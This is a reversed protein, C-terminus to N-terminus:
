IVPAPYFISNMYYIVGCVFHLSLTGTLVINVAMRKQNQFDFVGLRAAQGITETFLIFLAVMAGWWFNLHAMNKVESFLLAIVIAVVFNLWALLVTKDDRLQQRYFLTLLLPFLISLLIFLFVSGLNPVYQLIAKFPAFIISDSDAGLYTMYFQEALIVVAPLALTVIVYWWNLSRFRKIQFLALLGVAPLFTITFSPKAQTALALWVAGLVIPKWGPPSYLQRFTLYFVLMAMPKLLIFTPNHYVNGTIYGLYTREPMTFFFIPGVLMAVLTLGVTLWPSYKKKATDWMDTFRKFVILATAAMAAVMLFLTTIDYSKADILTNIYPSIKTFVRFPILPRLIVVLNQFLNNPPRYIYGSDSLERAWELHHQYDGVPLQRYIVIGFVFAVAMFLLALSKQDRTMQVPREIFYFHPNSQVCLGGQTNPM